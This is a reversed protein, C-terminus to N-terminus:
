HELCTDHYCQSLMWTDMMWWCWVLCVCFMTAMNEWYSININEVHKTPVKCYKLLSTVTALGMLARVPSVSIWECSQKLHECLTSKVYLTKLQCIQCVHNYQVNEYDNNNLMDKVPIQVWLRKTWLNGIKRSYWGIRTLYWIM